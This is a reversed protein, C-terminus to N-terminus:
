KGFRTSLTQDWQKGTVINPDDAACSTVVLIVFAIALMAAIISDPIREGVIQMLNQFDIKTQEMMTRM